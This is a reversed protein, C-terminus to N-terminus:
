KIRQLAERLLEESTKDVDDLNKAAERAQTPAYGMTILGEVVDSLQSSQVQGSDTKLKTNEVKSKLEVVVREATKKGVGSVKTLYEVDGNSIAHSIEEVSGLSLLHLGSKPGIGSVSILHLFLNRESISSFGYLRLANESVSLYTMIEIQEGIKYDGVSNPKVFIRYGVGGSTLLTLESNNDIVKGQILSIM